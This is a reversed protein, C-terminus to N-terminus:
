ESIRIQTNEWYFNTGSNLLLISSPACATLDAITFRTSQIVKTSLEKCFCYSIRLQSAYVAIQKKHLIGGLVTAWNSRHVHIVRGGCYVTGVEWGISRLIRIGHFLLAGGRPLPGLLGAGPPFGLFVHGGGRGGATGHRGRIVATLTEQYQKCM